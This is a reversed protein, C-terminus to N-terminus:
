AQRESSLCEIPMLPSGDRASDHAPGNGADYDGHREHWQEHRLQWAEQRQHELLEPSDGYMERGREQHNRLGNWEAREHHREPNEGWYGAGGWGHAYGYPRYHYDPQAPAYYTPPPAYYRPGYGGGIQISWRTQAFASGCALLMFAILLKAKM